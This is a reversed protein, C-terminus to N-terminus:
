VEAVKLADRAIQEAIGHVTKDGSAVRALIDRAWKRYDRRNGSMSNVAELVKDAYQKNAETNLPSALRPHITVKHRCLELIEHISPPKSQTDIWTDFAKLVTVLDYQELKGWWLHLAKGTPKPQRTAEAVLDMMEKFQPKESEIM